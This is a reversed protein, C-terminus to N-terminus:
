LAPRPALALGASPAYAPAPALGPLDIRGTEAAALLADVVDADWQTGRKRRFEALVVEVPMGRRYPRDTTMADLADAVAIIRAGLPIYEGPIANPYGQGDVREHHFRVFETAQAFEPFRGLITAGVGPHSRLQAWEADDLPGEKDLVARDLVIKGIDHVRAAREVLDIGSPAVGLATALERSLAAVRRSHNATYPDRLDIIDALSEVAEVTQRSITIQRQVSHYVVIGPLIFLPLAWANVSAVIAALLGLAFQALDEVSCSAVFQRLSQRLNFKGRMAIRCTTVALNVLYIAAAATFILFANGSLDLRLAATSWGGLWLIAGGTGAQLLASAIAGLRQTNPTRQVSQAVLCGGGAILMAVVPDFLLVAAFIVSTDLTVRAAGSVQLPFLHALAMLAVLTLACAAADISLAPTWVLALGGIAASLAASAPLHPKLWHWLGIPTAIERLMYRTRAQM